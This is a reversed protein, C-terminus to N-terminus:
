VLSSLVNELEQQIETFWSPSIEQILICSALTLFTGYFAGHLTGGVKNKKVFESINQLIKNPILNASLVLIEVLPSLIMLLMFIFSVISFIIMWIDPIFSIVFVYLVVYIWMGIVCSFYRFIWPLFLNLGFSRLQTSWNIIPACLEFTLDIVIAFLLLLFFEVLFESFHNTFLDTISQTGFLQFFNEFFPIGEICIQVRETNSAFLEPGYLFSLALGIMVGIWRGFAKSFQGSASIGIICLIIILIAPLSLAGFNPSGSM